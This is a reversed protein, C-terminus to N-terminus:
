SNLYNSGLNQYFTGDRLMHYAATPISAAVASPFRTMDTDIESFIVQATLDSVGPITWLKLPWTRRIV